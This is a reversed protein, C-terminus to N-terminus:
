DALLELKVLVPRHDSAVREDIVRTESVRWREAPRVLVHDISKHPPKSPYSHGGGSMLTWRKALEVMPPSGPECNFDGALITPASGEGLKANIAQAQTLRDSPDATHDLHASVLYLRETTSLWLQSVAAVRPERRGGPKYPLPVATTFLLPLKTLIANGYQGDQFDMAPAYAPEMGTLRALEAIQDIGGTRSAGRDVEQLAVFDANAARIVGAIRELDLKKDMGEGHHINYTMVTLRITGQSKSCGTLPVVLLVILLTAHRIM